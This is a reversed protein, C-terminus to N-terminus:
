AEGKLTLSPKGFVVTGLSTRQNTFQVLIREGQGIYAGTNQTTFTNQSLSISEWAGKSWNYLRAHQSEDTVRGMGPGLMAM